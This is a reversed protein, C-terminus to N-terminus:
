DLTDANIEEVSDLVVIGDNRSFNLKYVPTLEGPKLERFKECYCFWEDRPECSFDQNYRSYLPIVGAEFCEKRLEIDILMPRSFSEFRVIGIKNAPIERKDITNM